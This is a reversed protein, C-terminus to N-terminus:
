MFFATVDNKGAWLGFGTLLGAFIGGWVLYVGGGGVHREARLFVGFLGNELLDLFLKGRNVTFLEAVSSFLFFMLFVKVTRRYCLLSYHVPHRSVQKVAWWFPKLYPDQHFNPYGTHQQKLSNGSL